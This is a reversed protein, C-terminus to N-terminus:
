RRRVRFAGRMFPHIRCFYTYTGPKLNRPTRWTDRNATPSFGPQGFGLQGSDFQVRGDALPYAIGTTRNCPERCATVTHWIGDRADTSRFTLSRGERVVPPRGSRGTASLDGRSYVFDSITVSRTAPGPRLRRPDPLGSSRRGGHNDNEPLHGHTIEGRSDVPQEFPDKAGPVDGRVFFTPNIAMSEYWAARKTDYTGSLRLEDGARVKVLWDPDSATMAVDWSVAGAPEWYKAESRFIERSQDGRRQELSTYLGGPHLHGYTWVLTMDFDARFRQAFGIRSRQAATVAEDPFAFRGDGGGWGRLVDFVPYPKIGAVDLWLPEVARLEQAAAADAPVFDVEYTLYVTDKGPLLNHIMYNMIWPDEPAYQYGFGRPFQFITKEEGAAFTPYNRMLWVGHHLHLEDVGPVTGDRRVLNPEFRTIYGPVPPKLRNPAFDITNQGPKIAIPGFEYHLKQMGPYEVHPVAGPMQVPPAAHAAPAAAAACLLAALM